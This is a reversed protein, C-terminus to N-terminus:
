DTTSESATQGSMADVIEALLMSLYRYQAVLGARASAAEDSEADPGVEDDDDEFEDEESVELITGIVLRMSNIARMWGNGETVSLQDRQATERLVKVADVHREFLDDRMLRQYELNREADLNYAPPFLRELMPAAAASDSRLLHELQDAVQVLFAREWELLPVAFGDLTPRISRRFGNM